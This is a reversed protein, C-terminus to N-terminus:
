RGSVWAELAKRKRPAMNVEPSALTRRLPEMLVSEARDLWRRADGESTTLVDWVIETGLKTERKNGSALLEAVVTADVLLRALIGAGRQWRILGDLTAALVPTGVGPGLGALGRAAGERGDRTPAVFLAYCLDDIAREGRIRALAVGAYGAWVSESLLIERVTVYGSEHGICGLLLATLWPEAREEAFARLVLTAAEQSPPRRELEAAAPKVLLLNELAGEVLHESSFKSPNQMVDLVTQRNM